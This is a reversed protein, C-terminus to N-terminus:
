WKERGDNIIKQAPTIEQGGLPWVEAPDGIVEGRTETFGEATLQVQRGRRPMNWTHSSILKCDKM